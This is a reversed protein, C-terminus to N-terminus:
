WSQVERRKPHPDSGKFAVLLVITSEMDKIVSVSQSEQKEEEELKVLKENIDIEIEDPNYSKLPVILKRTYM